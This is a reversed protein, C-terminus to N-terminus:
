KGIARIEKQVGLWAALKRKAKGKNTFYAGQNTFSRPDSIVGRSSNGIGWYQNGRMVIVIADGTKAREVVTSRVFEKIANSSPLESVIKRPLNWKRSHYPVLEIVAVRHSLMSLADQYTSLRNRIQFARAFRRLRAEWYKFGGHWAFAPNLVFFPYKIGKLKQKLNLEITSRFHEDRYEAYYDHAGFGPNMQLLFIDAKILDGAYPQPILDMFLAPKAECERLDDSKSFKDYSGHTVLAVGSQELIKRDGPFFYPPKGAIVKKWQTTMEELTM